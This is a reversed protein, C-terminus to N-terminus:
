MRVTGENQNGYIDDEKLSNKAAATAIPLLLWPVKNGSTILPNNFNWQKCVFRLQLYENYSHFRKTIQNLMDHHIGAWQDVGGM